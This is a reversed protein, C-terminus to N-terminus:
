QYLHQSKTHTHPVLVCFQYSKGRVHSALESASYHMELSQVVFHKLYISFMEHTVDRIGMFGKM